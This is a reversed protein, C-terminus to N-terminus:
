VMKAGVPMPGTPFRKLRRFGSQGQEPLVAFDYSGVTGVRFGLFLEAANEDKFRPVHIMSHLEHRLMRGHFVAVTELNPRCPVHAFDDLCALLPPAPVSPGSSPEAKDGASNSSM